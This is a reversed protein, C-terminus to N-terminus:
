RENNVSFSIEEKVSEESEVEPSVGVSHVDILGIARDSEIPDSLVEDARREEIAPLVQQSSEVPQSPDGIDKDM